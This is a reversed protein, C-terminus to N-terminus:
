RPNRLEKQARRKLSTKEGDEGKEGVKKGYIANYKERM